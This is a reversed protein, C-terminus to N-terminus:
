PALWAGIPGPLNRLVGFILATAFLWRWPHKAAPFTKPRFKHLLYYVIAPGVVLVAIANHRLAEGVNGRILDALARMGGCGPCYFGTLELFACEGGFPLLNSLWGRWWAVVAIVAILASLALELKRSKM